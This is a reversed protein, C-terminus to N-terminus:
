PFSRTFLHTKLKNKFSDVSQSHIRLDAPLNNWLRPGAVPFSKDGYFVTRARPVTLMGSEVSRLNKRLSVSSLPTCFDNLYLPAYNHLCKFTTLCSMFEIREPIKLWHLQQLM